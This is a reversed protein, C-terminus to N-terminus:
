PCRQPVADPLEDLPAFGQSRAAPAQNLPVRVIVIRGDSGGCVMARMRGDNGCGAELVEVGAAGLAKRADEPSLGGGECQRSGASKYLTVAPSAAAAPSRLAPPRDAAQCGAMTLAVVMAAGGRLRMKM